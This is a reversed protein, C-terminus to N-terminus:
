SSSVLGTELKFAAFAEDVNGYYIPPKKADGSGHTILWRPERGFARKNSISAVQEGDVLVRCHSVARRNNLDLDGRNYTLPRLEIIHQM